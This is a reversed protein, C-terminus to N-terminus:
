DTGELLTMIRHRRSSICLLSKFNRGMGLKEQLTEKMCKGTLPFLPVMKGSGLDASDRKICEWGTNLEEESSGCAASLLIRYFM